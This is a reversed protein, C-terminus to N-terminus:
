AAKREAALEGRWKTLAQGLKSSRQTFEGELLSRAGDKEGVIAKELVHSACQHFEMHLRSVVKFPMGHKTAADIEHGHLWKGFECSKDCRAQAPTVNSSGTTVATRLRLKWAGHAGLAAAIAKMIAQNNSM